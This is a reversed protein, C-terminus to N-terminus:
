DVEDRPPKMRPLLKEACIFAAYYYFDDPMERSLSELEIRIHNHIIVNM